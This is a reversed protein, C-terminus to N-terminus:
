GPVWDAAQRSGFLAVALETLDFPKSLVRVGDPAHGLHALQASTGASILVISLEPDAARLRTALQFGSIGPLMVDIVAGTLQATKEGALKISSGSGEGDPVLAEVMSEASSFGAPRCGILGLWATLAIVIEADDDVIAILREAATEAVAKSPPIIPAM